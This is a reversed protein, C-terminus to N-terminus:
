WRARLKGNEDAFVLLDGADIEFRDRVEKPITVQFKHSLKRSGLIEKALDARALSYLRASKDREHASIVLAMLASRETSSTGLCQYLM